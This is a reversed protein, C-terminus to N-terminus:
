AADQSVNPKYFGAIFWGIFAGALVLLGTIIFMLTILVVPSIGAMSGVESFVASVLSVPYSIAMILTSVLGGIFSALAAVIFGKRIVITAIFGAIAVTYWVGTFFLLYCAIITIVLTILFGIGKGIKM